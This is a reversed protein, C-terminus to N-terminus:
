YWTYCMAIPKLLKTTQAQYKVMQIMTPYSLHNSTNQDNIWPWVALLLLTASGNRPRTPHPFKYHVSPIKGKSCLHCFQIVHIFIPLFIETEPKPSPDTDNSHPEKVEEDPDHKIEDPNQDLPETETDISDDYNIITELFKMAVSNPDKSDLELFATLLNPIPIINKYYFGSKPKKITQSRQQNVPLM